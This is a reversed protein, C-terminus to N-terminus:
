ILDESESESESREARTRRNTAKTAKATETAGVVVGPLHCKVLRTSPTLGVTADDGSGFIAMNTWLSIGLRNPHATALTTMDPSLSLSVVPAGLVMRQLCHSHPVDWIRVSGDMSSSLLWKGDEAWVLDTM